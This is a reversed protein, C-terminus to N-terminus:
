LNKKNHFTEFTCKFVSVLVAFIGHVWGRVEDSKLMKHCQIQNLKREVGKKKM